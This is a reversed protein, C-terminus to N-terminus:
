TCNFRLLTLETCHKCFRNDDRAVVAYGMKLFHSQLRVIDTAFRFEQRRPRHNPLWLDSFQTEYHIEVLIQMPYVFSASSGDSIVPWSEFIPWEYGEIDFKLLDIQTHGLMSQIDKLTKIPGCITGRKKDTCDIQPAPQPVSGLCIHHFTLRNNEPKHFRAKSGTCDFTHIECTTRNLLDLEFEWMNNGGISYIVCRKSGQLQEAGCMVKSQDKGCAGGICSLKCSSMTQFPFFRDHTHYFMEPKNAELLHRDMNNLWNQAQAAISSLSTNLSTIYPNRSCLSSRIARLHVYPGLQKLNALQLITTTTLFLGLIWAVTIWKQKKSAQLDGKKKHGSNNDGTRIETSSSDIVPRLKGTARRSTM